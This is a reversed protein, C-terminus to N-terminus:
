EKSKGSLDALRAVVEDYNPVKPHLGNPGFMDPQCSNARTHGKMLEAPSIQELEVPLSATRGSPGDRTRQRSVEGNSIRTGHNEQGSDKDGSQPELHKRRVSKPKPNAKEAANDDGNYEVKDVHACDLGSDSSRETTNVRSKTHHHRVNEHNFTAADSEKDHGSESMHEQEYLKQQLAKSNWETGSETAIDQMLQLKMDKKHPVPKLKETFQKSVYFELSNGYRESFITRLQRLEPLDALRAAAFMLSAVAERCDESCERQQIMTELHCFIHDCYQELFDYCSLLNLEVLLGETRDYANVDLGSKLLDAIDNKLYKQMANRKKRVMEIRTKMQKITSKCKSCFKNRKWSDLM